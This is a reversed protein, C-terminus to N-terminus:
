RFGDDVGMEWLGGVVVFFGSASEGEIFEEEELDGDELAAALPLVCGLALGNVGGAVCNM